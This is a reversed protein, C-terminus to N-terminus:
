TGSVQPFNQQLFDRLLQILHGYRGGTLNEPLDCTTFSFNRTHNTEEQSDHFIYYRKGNLETFSRAYVMQEVAVLLIPHQKDSLGIRVDYGWHTLLYHRLSIRVYSQISPFIHDAYCQVLQFIFWDNFNHSISCQKLYPLLKSAVGYEMYTKWLTAFNQSALLEGNTEIGTQPVKVPLCYFDFNSYSSAPLVPDTFPSPPTHPNEPTTDPSIPTQLTPQKPRDHAIPAKPPKLIPTREVGRFAEYSQDEQAMVPFIGAMSMLFLLFYTKM